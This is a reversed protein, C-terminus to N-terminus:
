VPAKRQRKGGVKKWDSTIEGLKLNILLPLPMQADSVKERQEFSHWSQDPYEPSSQVARSGSGMEDNRRAPIETPLIRGNVCGRLGDLRPSM